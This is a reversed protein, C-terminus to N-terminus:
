SEESSICLELSSRDGETILSDNLSHREKNYLEFISHMCFRTARM